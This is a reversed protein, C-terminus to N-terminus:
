KKAGSAGTTTQTAPAAKAPITIVIPAQSGGGGGSSRTSSVSRTSGGGGASRGSSGRGTALAAAQARVAAVQRTLADVKQANALLATRLAVLTPDPAPVAPVAPAPKATQPHLPDNHLAWATTGAFLSAAVPAALAAASWRATRGRLETM